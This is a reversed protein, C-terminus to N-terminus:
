PMPQKLNSSDHRCQDTAPSITPDRQTPISMPTGRLTKIIVRDCQESILQGRETKKAGGELYRFTKHANNNPNAMNAAERLAIDVSQAFLDVSEEKLKKGNDATWFSTLDTASKPQSVIKVTSQYVAASKAGPAYISISNELIIASQDQTILFVPMSEVSWNADPKESFEVLKKNGSTPIKELGRQMLDKHSYSALVPQYPLLVKDAAEQLKNKQSNKVSENLIGHTIVAAVFGAANPAPYLMSGTNGGAGDFNVVGKYLVKEEEPLRLTWSSDKTILKSANQPGQEVDNGVTTTICATLIMLAMTIAALRVISLPQPTM